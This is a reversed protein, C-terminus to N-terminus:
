IHKIYKCKPYNSCGFFKGYKSTREILQGSCQPCKESLQSARPIEEDKKTMKIYRILASGDILEIPKDEIFKEAELTFTNTTIFYGKGDALHDALVGYFDRVESLTVKSTIFKKCQIYSKVGDKEIIVDVGRDHSQGVAETKYGLRSFLDAIYDEFESPQMGRLRYLLDRDSRWSEGEKFKRRIHWNDITLDLKDLLINIIEIVVLLLWLPWLQWLDWLIIKTLGWLDIQM